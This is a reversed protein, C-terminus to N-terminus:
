EKIFKSHHMKGSVDTYSIIYTGASLHYFDFALKNQGVELLKTFQMVNSGLINSVNFVAEQKESAILWLNFISKVPNPFIQVIEDKINNGSAKVVIRVIPSYEFTQDNDTIKLRYYNNGVTPQSDAFSYDTVGMKNGVALVNGIVKWNEGDLSKQIEFYSTNKESATAWTLENTNKVINYTGDFATLEVPLPGGIGGNTHFRFTSFSPILLEYQPTKGPGGDIAVTGYYDAKEDKSVALDGKNETAGYCAVYSYPTQFLMNWDVMEATYNNYDNDTFFLRISAPHDARPQIQPTITYWRKMSLEPKGFCAVNQGLGGNGHKPSLFSNDHPETEIHVTMTVYGLDEGHSNIAAIVEGDDNIFYHWENDNVICIRTSTASALLGPHMMDNTYVPVVNSPESECSIGNVTAILFRRYWTTQVPAPYIISNISDKLTYFGTHENTTSAEWRYAFDDANLKGVQNAIDITEGPCIVVNSASLINDIPTPIIILTKDIVKDGCLSNTTLTLTIIGDESLSSTYTANQPDEADNWTGSGGSWIGTVTNNSTINAGMPISTAGQCIPPLATGADISTNSIVTITANGTINTELIPTATFAVRKLDYSIIEPIDTNIQVTKSSSAPIIISLENGNNITYVVEIEFPEPNTFTVLPKDADKCVSTTGSITAKPTSHVLITAVADDCSTINTKDCIEYPYLYTGTPTNPAISITGTANMTIGTYPATGPTLEVNLVTAPQQNVLDNILVTTTTSGIIGDILYEDDVAEIKKVFKIGFNNNELNQTAQLNFVVSQGNLLGSNGTNPTGIYSGTHEWGTPLTIAPADQGSAILNNTLVVKYGNGAAVHSISYTGDSNIAVSKIAKGLNNVLTAYFGTPIPDASSADVNGGDLDNFVNGCVSPLIAISQSIECDTLGVWRAKVTYNGPNLNEFVSSTQKNTWNNITYEITNTNSLSIPSTVELSSVGCISSSLFTEIPSTPLALKFEIDDLALDNGVGGITNNRIVVIIESSTAEFTFSFQQWNSTTIVGSANTKLLAGTVADYINFSVDPKIAAGSNINLIWASFTYEAGVIVNTFKRRFFEDRNYAANVVMMRGKTDGTHDKFSGAWNAFAATSNVVKYYGDEANDVVGGPNVKYHYSTQGVLVANDDGTGFTEKYSVNCGAILETSQANWTVFEAHVMEGNQVNLMAMKGSINQSSNANPDYLKIDVIQHGSPVSNATVIYNGASPVPILVGQTQAPATGGPESATRVREDDIWWIETGDKARTWIYRYDSYTYQEFQPIGWIQDSLSAPNSGLRIVGRSKSEAPQWANTYEYTFQNKFTVFVEDKGNVVISKIDQDAALAITATSAPRGLDTGVTAGAIVKYFSPINTGKVKPADCYYVNGNKDAALANCYSMGGLSWVNTWNNYNIGNSYRMIKSQNLSSIYLSGRNGGYPSWAIDLVDDNKNSTYITFTNNGEQYVVSKGDSTIYFYGRVGNNNYNYPGGAIGKASIGTSTWTSSNVNRYYIIGPNYIEDLAGANKNFGNYAVAYLNGYTDASIDQIRISNERDNMSFTKNFSDPGTVTYSVTPSSSEDISKQHIYIFQTNNNGSPPNDGSSPKLGVAAITWPASTSTTTMSVSAAGAKTSASGSVSSNAKDDYLKTQGSGSTHGSNNNFATVAYVLQNTAASITVSAVTGNGLNGVPTTFPSLQDVGSFVQVGIIANDIQSNNVVVTNSGTPPNILYWIEVRTQSDSQDSSTQKILRTLAFGGYTISNINGYRQQASVGVLLIQESGIGSNNYTFSTFSSNNLKGVAVTNDVAIQAYVDITTFFSLWIVILFIPIKQLFKTM